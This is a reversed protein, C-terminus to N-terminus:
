QFNIKMVKQMLVYLIYLNFHAQLFKSEKFYANRLKSLLFLSFTNQPTQNLGKSRTAQLLCVKKKAKM